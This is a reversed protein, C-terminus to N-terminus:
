LCRAPNLQQKDHNKGILLGPWWQGRDYEYWQKNEEDFLALLVRGPQTYIAGGFFEVKEFPGCDKTGDAGAEFWVSCFSGHMQLKIGNNDAIHWDGEQYQGIEKDGPGVRLSAALVRVWPFPGMRLVEQGHSKLLLTVM